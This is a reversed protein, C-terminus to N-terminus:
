KRLQSFNLEDIKLKTNSNTNDNLTSFMQQMLIRFTKRISIEEDKM